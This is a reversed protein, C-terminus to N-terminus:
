HKFKENEFAVKDFPPNTGIPTPLTLITKLATGGDGPVPVWTLLRTVLDNYKTNLDNLKTVLDDIKILGGNVGNQFVLEELESFMSVYATTNDTFAVIVLSDVAPKLLIGLDGPVQQLRVDDIDEGNVLSVKVTKSAEDVSVVTGIRSYLEEEKLFLRFIDFLIEAVNNKNSTFAKNEKKAM